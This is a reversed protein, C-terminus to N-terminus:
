EGHSEWSKGNSRSKLFMTSLVPSKLKYGRNGTFFCCFTYYDIICFIRFSFSPNSESFLYCQAVYKVVCTCLYFSDSSIVVGLKGNLFSDKSVFLGLLDVRSILLYILYYTFKTFLYCIWSNWNMYPGSILDCFLHAYIQLNCSLQTVLNETMPLLQELPSILCM